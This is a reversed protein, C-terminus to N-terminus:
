CSFTEVRWRYNGFYKFVGVLHYFCLNGFLLVPVQYKLM